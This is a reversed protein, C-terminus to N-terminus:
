WCPLPRAPDWLLDLVWTAGSGLRGLGTPLGRRLGVALVGPGGGGAVWSYLLATAVCM